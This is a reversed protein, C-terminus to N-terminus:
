LQKKKHRAKGNTDVFRQKVQNKVDMYFIHFLVMSLVAIGKLFDIEPIRKINPESAIENIDDVVEEIDDTIEEVSM